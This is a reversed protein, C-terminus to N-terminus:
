IKLNKFLEKSYYTRLMSLAMNKGFRHPRTVCMFCRNTNILKNTQVILM